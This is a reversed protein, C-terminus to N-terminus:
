HEANVSALNISLYLFHSNWIWKGILRFKDVAKSEFCNWDSCLLRIFDISFTTRHFMWHLTFHLNFLIFFNFFGFTPSFTHIQPQASTWICQHRSWNIIKLIKVGILRFAFVNRGFGVSHGPDLWFHMQFEILMYRGNNEFKLCLLTISHTRKVRINLKLIFYQLFKGGVLARPKGNQDKFWMDRIADSIWAIRQLFIRIWIIPCDADHHECWNIQRRM